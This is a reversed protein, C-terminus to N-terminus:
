PFTDLPGPSALCSPSGPNKCPRVFFLVIASASSRQIKLSGIRSTGARCVWASVSTSSVWRRRQGSCPSCLFNRTWPLWLSSQPTRCTGLPGLLGAAAESSLSGSTCCSALGTASAGCLGTARWWTEMAPPRFIQPLPELSLSSPPLFPGGWAEIKVVENWYTLKSTFLAQWLSSETHPSFFM